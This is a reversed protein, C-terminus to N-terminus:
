PLFTGIDLDHGDTSVSITGREGTTMLEVGANKWREVVDPHPHGFPSTRGVSIVAFKPSVADVFAQTSSTRSGHHPVKVLDSSIAGGAVLATEAPSEIDGTLLFTRESMVFRLVVSHDNDSVAAPDDTAVPNLVELNVGGISLVEGSALTEIHIGRRSLVEAIAAYEPDAPPTRGFAATGITFNKAVDNLGQIHDADAHTALIHDIRSFGRYWLFESVVAEGIGRSDPVFPEGDAIAAAKYNTRGGGDVLLTTGDPFTVLASDGQGVDLFDIHLRGDPRSVSFPHIVIVAVFAALTLMAPALVGLKLWRSHYKLDFPRWKSAAIAFVILPLAYLFYIAKGTGSYAPLRFSAFGNDSFLRPMLLMIRDAFEAVAFFPAALMGSVSFVLSGAVAAVSEVAIFVGVWLNLVISSVSVRHFYIVSLPLMSIQVILSVLIGEFLFRATSQLGLMMRDAFYPSKFIRASWVQRQSEIAWADVNWYFTECLRRLWVPVNPPFPTAANPTWSGIRKLTDVLPYALVVIAAVSVFTLQFSPEFLDSPRWVLLVLSCIGLSNLLSVQRYIVYSSLVVTFMLAARVVPVDAGVALTYAWLASVTVIMQLRRDRTLKRLLLLLLGGIITIHLGSIVLIHFTGGDRFLDATEKDLFYKDGLLSAIMVGAARHSLNARFAEILRARQDYVWALPLFVSEDALKEVLKSSKVAGTADIRQRDLVEKKSIVGPNIFADDRDLKCAVRIRSGYNLDLPDSGPRVDALFLRVNGTVDRAQGRSILKEARLTVFSGDFSAEPRGLLVGEVEVPDGSRVSGNEYLTKIRDAAAPRGDIAASAFGAAVFAFLILCVAFDRKRAAFAAAGLGFAAAIPIWAEVCGARSLLIGAAFSVGLWLM